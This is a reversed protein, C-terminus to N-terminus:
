VNWSNLFEDLSEFTGHTPSDDLKSAEAAIPKKSNSATAIDLIAPSSEGSPAFSTCAPCGCREPGILERRGVTTSNSVIWTTPQEAQADLVFSTFPSKSESSPMRVFSATEGEGGGGSSMRNIANIVQLVDLPGLNRDGNVDLYPPSTTGSGDLDLSGNRNIENILILVDLPNVSGHNDVDENILQNQWPSPERKLGFDIHSLVGNSALVVTQLGTTPSTFAYGLDSPQVLLKYTGAPLYPLSYSGDSATKITSKPGFRLNDLKLYSNNVGRAIVSAIQSTETGVEMTIKQGNILGKKEFRKILTGDAALADLRIDANDAISIADISVYSTPNDFRVRLQQSNGRFADVYNGAAFSFPKFIKLGTSANLDEFVGVSGTTDEGIVDLRVGIVTNNFIGSQFNDPEVITQLAVQQNSGNVITVSMGALGTEDASWANNRNADNWVFGQLGQKTTTDPVPGLEGSFINSTIGIRPDVARIEIRGTASNGLPINLDLNVTYQDPSSFTTWAGNDIRYEIRGVKNLTIDHQAGSSNRNPFTQVASRGVFRYTNTAANLRGTGELLLPVDLVDFIGDRDSDKWGLQELTADSTVLTDFSTQLTSGASM